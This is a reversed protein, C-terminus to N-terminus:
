ELRLTRSKKQGRKKVAKRENVTVEGDGRKRNKMTRGRKLEQERDKVGIERSKRDQAM